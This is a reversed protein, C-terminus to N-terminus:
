DLGELVVTGDYASSQRQRHRMSHNHLEHLSLFEPHNAPGEYEGKRGNLIMRWKRDIEYLDLGATDPITWYTVVCAVFSAYGSLLFMDVDGVYHFLVAALLAGCKGSAAAIGHCMTRQSTPFIEAPILFTTANPGLQGFFSSGLYLAILMTSSLQEYLFGCAVFLTGTLLFGFQQLKRRGVVDLLIAAGFYGLLAVAANLTAALAFELLTTDPGTLAILFSSQFLKNGYFAIDWLMWSLSAGLLRVGYNRLFLATSTTYGTITSVMQQQHHQRLADRALEELDDKDQKWVTSEPLFRIRSLWVCTLVVAGLTYTWRWIRLLANHNYSYSIGVDDDYNNTDRIADGTQGFVIILITIILSNCFIGVGQMTFVLQVQRGRNPSSTPLPSKISSDMAKESASSASLPYEGGVGVGFVFLVCSMCRFLNPSSLATYSLLTLAISAGSMLSATLISGKRRGIVNAAYGIVLMGSIVGLVISYTLSQRLRPRCVSAGDTEDDDSSSTFCEPYVINWFPQLTGISFLLYSEGFLGMGPWFTQWFFNWCPKLPLAFQPIMPKEM